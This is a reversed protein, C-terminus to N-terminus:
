TESEQPTRKHFAAVAPCFASMVDIKKVMMSGNGYDGRLGYGRAVLYYSDHQSPAEKHIYFDRDTPIGRWSSFDMWYVIQNPPFRLPPQDAVDALTPLSM